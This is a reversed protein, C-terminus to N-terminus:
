RAAGSTARSDEQLIEVVIEAAARVFGPCRTEYLGLGKARERGAETGMECGLLESCGTTGFRALFRRNLEDALRYAHEKKEGDSAGKSASALGLVMLAGTVAGCTAGTRAIGAGFPAALAKAATESLGLAPAFSALVSQACNLEGSFREVAEDAVTM